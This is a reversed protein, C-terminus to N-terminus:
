LEKIEIGMAKEIWDALLRRHCFAGKKEYCLLVVDKGSFNKELRNYISDPDHQETIEEMYRGTYEENNIRGSKADGLLKKSPALTEMRDGTFWKALM